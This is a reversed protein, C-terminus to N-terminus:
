NLMAFYKQWDFGSGPDWKRGPAIQAHGVIRDRTISPYFNVLSQTLAVLQSYQHETFTDGDSGELEIGLSFDNCNKEGNFESAGAHWARQNIPVYQLLRGDRRILFHSSVKLGVLEPYQEADLQNCFLKNVDDGGYKGEPLSIAHIVLMNITTNSPLDDYNPSAIYTAETHLFTSSDIAM